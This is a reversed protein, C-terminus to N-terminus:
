ELTFQKSNFDYTLLQIKGGITSNINCTAFDFIHSVINKAQIKMEELTANENVQILNVYNKMDNNLDGAYYLIGNEMPEVSVKNKGIDFVFCKSKKILFITNIDNPTKSLLYEYTTQENIPQDFFSFINDNSLLFDKYYDNFNFDDTYVPGIIGFGTDKNCYIKQQEDRYSIQGNNNDTRRSDTAIVFGNKGKFAIMISMKGDDKKNENYFLDSKLEILQEEMKKLNSLIQLFDPKVKEVSHHTGSNHDEQLSSSSGVNNDQSIKFELVKLYKQQCEKCNSLAQEIEQKKM